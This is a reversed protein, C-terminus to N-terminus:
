SAGLLSRGRRALYTGDENVYLSMLRVPGDEWPAPEAPVVWIMRPMRSRVLIPRDAGRYRAVEVPRTETWPGNQHETWRILDATVPVRTKRLTAAPVTKRLKM